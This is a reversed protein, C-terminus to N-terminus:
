APPASEGPAHAAMIAAMQAAGDDSMALALVDASQQASDAIRVAMEREYRPIDELADVLELADRMANNVGEGAMPSMVHAADGLLTIGPRHPWTFGAPFQYIPLALARDDRAADLFARFPWAAFADLLQAKVHAPALGRYATEPLQQAAYIRLNQNANRQAIIAKREGLAFIKGRGVLAALAPHDADLDDLELEVFLTGSYAPKADTLAPRVKSWTGDAGVVLDFRRRTGDALVVMAGDPQPEVAAIRANWQVIDAPLSRLLLDRLQKRDIEPRMSAAATEPADAHLLNGRHDYIRAEQDEYRALGRFDDLLGARALAALGTDAHLDLSGGQGRADPSSDAEYVTAAIGRVFLLRALTLGGPGGGIIAISQM